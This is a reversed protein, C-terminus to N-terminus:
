HYEFVVSCSGSGDCKGGSYFPDSETVERSHVGRETKLLEPHNDSPALPSPPPTTRYDQVRSCGACDAM